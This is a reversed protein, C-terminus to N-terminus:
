FAIEPDEQWVQEVHGAPFYLVESQVVVVSVIQSGQGGPKAQKSFTLVLQTV